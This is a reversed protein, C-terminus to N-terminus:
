RRMTTATSLCKGEHRVQCNRLILFILATAMFEVIAISTLGKSYHGTTSKLYGLLQPSFYGALNAISNIVALGVV